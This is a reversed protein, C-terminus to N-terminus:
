PMVVTFSSARTIDGNSVTTALTGAATFNVTVQTSTVNTYSGNNKKYKCTLTSGCGTLQEM